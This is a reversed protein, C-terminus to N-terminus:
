RRRGFLGRRGCQGNACPSSYQVPEDFTRFSTAQPQCSGNSCTAVRGVAGAIRAPIPTSPSKTPCDSCKCEGNVCVCVGTDTCICKAARHKTVKVVNLSGWPSGPCGALAAILILAIM